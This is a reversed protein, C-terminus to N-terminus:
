EEVKSRKGEVWKNKVSREGQDDAGLGDTLGPQKLTCFIDQIQGNEEIGVAM